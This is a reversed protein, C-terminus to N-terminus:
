ENDIEKQIAAACDEDEEDLSEYYFSGMPYYQANTDAETLGHEFFRDEARKRCIERARELGARIGSVHAAQYQEWGFQVINQQYRDQQDPHVYRANSLHEPLAAEFKTRLKDNNM